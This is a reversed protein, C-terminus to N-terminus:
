QIRILLHKIDWYAFRFVSTFAHVLFVFNPLGLWIFDMYTLQEHQCGQIVNCHGSELDARASCVVPHWRATKLSRARVCVCLM